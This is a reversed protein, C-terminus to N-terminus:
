PDNTIQDKMWEIGDDESPIPLSGHQARHETGRDEEDCVSFLTHCKSNSRRKRLKEKPRYKSADVTRNNLSEAFTTAYAQSRQDEEDGDASIQESHAEGSFEQGLALHPTCLMLALPLLRRTSKWNLLWM